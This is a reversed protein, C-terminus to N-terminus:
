NNELINNIEKESFDLNGDPLISISIDSELIADIETESYGIDKLGEIKANHEQEFYYDEIEEFGLVYNRTNEILCEVIDGFVFANEGNYSTIESIINEPYKEKFYQIYVNDVFSGGYTTYAFNVYTDAHKNKAEKLLSDSAFFTDRNNLDCKKM